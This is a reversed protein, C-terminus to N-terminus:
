VTKSVAGDPEVLTYMCKNQYIKILNRQAYSFAVKMEVSEARVNIEREREGSEQRVGM